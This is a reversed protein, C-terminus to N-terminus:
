AAFSLRSITFSPMVLLLAENLLVKIREVIVPNIKSTGILTPFETIMLLVNLSPVVM